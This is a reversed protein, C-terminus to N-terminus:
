HAYKNIGGQGWQSFHKQVYEKLQACKWQKCKSVCVIKHRNDKGRLDQLSWLEKITEWSTNKKIGGADLRLWNLFFLACVLLSLYMWELQLSQTTLEETDLNSRFEQVNLWGLASYSSGGKKKKFQPDWKVSILCGPEAKEDRLQFCCCSHLSASAFM